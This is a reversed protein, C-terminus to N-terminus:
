VGGHRPPPFINNKKMMEITQAIINGKLNEHFNIIKLMLIDEINNSELQLLDLNIKYLNIEATNLKNYLLKLQWSKIETELMNYGLGFDNYSMEILASPFSKTVKLKKKILKRLEIDINKIENQGLNIFEAGYTLKPM